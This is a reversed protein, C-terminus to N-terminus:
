HYLDYAIEIDALRAMGRWLVEAGPHGDGARGLHGGLNGLLRVAENLSPPFQSPKRTRSVFTTLAKWESDTFYVTCPVDPTEQGLTTLYHIRWAVIMDIALCNQLRVANELQRAEVRCGSKMIRHYVEIGWRRAYWELREYADQESSVAVTSLLMWELGEVEAPPSVEQALVAWVRAAPLKKKRKPSRLVVPLTRVALTAQRAARKESPPVLIQRTGVLEQRELLPWLFDCDGDDDQAKRNRSREARILLQAGYPTKAQEAFLEHIDSERDSMLVLRTKRCRRQVASVAQYSELWKRSEKEEIPKQHREHRSGIGERAWCQVDLLGLPTGEPTFVMTDHVMLGRVKESATGIPGLDRTNPHSSYNLTTTDQAILVLDKERLREETAQYHAALITKWDVAENDLFRYAAKAAAASGCAQPINATPQAYFMGTMQLLRATLRADGLNAERLEAEIWDKPPTQMKRRIRVTGDAQRCLATQWAATLPMVYIDKITAGSGRRGRGGTTGVHTWNAARYSTGAFRGREVYTELLVPRYRYVAEWDDALRRQALALLHSALNKVKVPPPILFRSNNVLFIHNSTRAEETWGIWADRSEVRRACASYSLGGIWGFRASRALYRLQAGCLPGSKLYHHADMLGRWLASLPGATVRVIELDGLEALSCSVTAVPPPASLQRAQRFAYHGSVEPLLIKGRRHLELLAKRCSMEQPRNANNRWDMWDCVRLSLQRRSIDPETEVTRSIRELIEESFIKGGVTIMFPIYM